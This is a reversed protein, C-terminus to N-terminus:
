KPNTKIEFAKFGKTLQIRELDRPNTIQTIECRKGSVLFTTDKRIRIDDITLYDVEKAIAFMGKGSFESGNFKVKVENGQIYIRKNNADYSVSEAYFYGSNQFTFSCFTMILSWLLLLKRVNKITTKM